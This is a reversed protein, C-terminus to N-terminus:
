YQTTWRTELEAEIRRHRARIGDAPVSLNSKLANVAAAAIDEDTRRNSGPLKADLENAVAKVGHVRKAAREAAYKEAYSSVYGRLTVVRGRVSVAIGAADVSPEFRLENLVDRQLEVDSLTATSM